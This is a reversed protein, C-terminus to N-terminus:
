KSKRKRRNKKAALRAKEQDTMFKFRIGINAIASIEKHLSGKGYSKYELEPRVYISFKRSGFEAIVGISGFTASTDVQTSDKSNGFSGIKAGLGLNIPSYRFLMWDYMLYGKTVNSTQGLVLRALNEPTLYRDTGFGFGLRHHRMKVIMDFHTPIVAGSNVINSSVVAGGGVGAGIIFADIGKPAETKEQAIIPSIIIIALFISLIKKM